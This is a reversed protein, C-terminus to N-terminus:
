MVFYNNQPITYPDVVGYKQGALRKEEPDFETEDEEIYVSYKAGEVKNEVKIIDLPSDSDIQGNAKIHQKSIIRQENLENGNIYVRNGKIQIKEGPLGIVRKLYITNPDKQYKFIILNGRNINDFNRKGIAHDGPILTNAMTGTPIRTLQLFFFWYIVGSFLFLALLVLIGIILKKM